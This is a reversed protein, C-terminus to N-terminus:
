DVAPSFSWEKSEWYYYIQHTQFAPEMCKCGFLYVVVNGSRMPESAVEWESVPTGCHRCKGGHEVLRAYAYEPAPIYPGAFGASVNKLEKKSLTDM